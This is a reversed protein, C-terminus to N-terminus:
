RARRRLLIAGIALGALSAPEPVPNITVSWATTMQYAIAGPDNASLASEYHSLYGLEIASGAASFDPNSSFNAAGDGPTGYDYAVGVFEGFNAAGLGTQSDTEIPTSGGPLQTFFNSRYFKGNQKMLFAFKVGDLSGKRASISYDVSGVAGDVSPTYGGGTFRSGVGWAIAGGNGHPFGTIRYIGANYSQFGNGTNIVYLGAAPANGSVVQAWSGSSSVNNDTYTVAAQSTLSTAVLLTLAYLFVKGCKHM